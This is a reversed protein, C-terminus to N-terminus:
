LLSDIITSFIFNKKAFIEGGKVINIIFFKGIEELKKCIKGFFYYDKRNSSM